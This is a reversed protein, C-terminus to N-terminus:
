NAQQWLSPAPGIGHWVKTPNTYVSHCQYLNKETYKTKKRTLLMGRMSWLREGMQWWCQVAKSTPLTTLFSGKLM